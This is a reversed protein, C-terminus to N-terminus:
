AFKSIVVSALTKSAAKAAYEAARKDLVPDKDDNLLDRAAQAKKRASALGVSPYGGLGYKRRKGTSPSKYIFLWSKAAGQVRLYLRDGDLRHWQSNEGAKVVYGDVQGHAGFRLGVGM